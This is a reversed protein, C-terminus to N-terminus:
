VNQVGTQYSLAGFIGIVPGIIFLLLTGSWSFITTFHIFSDMLTVNFTWFATFALFYASGIPYLFKGTLGIAALVGILVTQLAGVAIVMGNFSLTNSTSFTISLLTWVINFSLIYLLIDNSKM